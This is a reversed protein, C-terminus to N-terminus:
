HWAHILKYTCNTSSCSPAGSLHNDDCSLTKSWSFSETPDSENVDTEDVKMMNKIRTRLNIMQRALNKDQLKMEQLEKRLWMIANQLDLERETMSAGDRQIVPVKHEKGGTVTLDKTTFARMGCADNFNVRRQQQEQKSDNTRSM